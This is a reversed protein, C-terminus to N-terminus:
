PVQMLDNIQEMLAGIMQLRNMASTITTYNGSYEATICIDTVEGREAQELLTRCTAIINDRHPKRADPMVLLKAM